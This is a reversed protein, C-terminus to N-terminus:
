RREMLSELHGLKNKLRDRAGNKRYWWASKKPDYDHRWFRAYVCDRQYDPLAEIAQRIEGHHYALMAAEMVWEDFEKSDELIDTPIPEFNTRGYHSPKGTYTGRVACQSIRWKAKMRLHVQLPIDGPPPEQYARWMAIWGEQALDAVDSPHAARERALTLLWGRHGELIEDIETM